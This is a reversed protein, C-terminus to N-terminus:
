RCDGAPAGYLEYGMRYQRTRSGFMLRSVVGETHPADPPAHLDDALFRGLRAKAADARAPDGRDQWLLLCPGSGAARPWPSAPYTVDIIRARPFTVRMNGGIHFNEALITGTGDYGAARLESALAAFPVMNRCSGCHDAGREWVVIRAAFAIGVLAAMMLAFAAISRRGPRGREVLM